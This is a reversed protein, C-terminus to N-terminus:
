DYQIPTSTAKMMWFLSARLDGKPFVPFFEDVLEICNSDSYNDSIMVSPKTLDMARIVSPKRGDLDEDFVGKCVGNEFVLSSASFEAVDLKSAVEAVVFDLSASILQVDRGSQQADKLLNMVPEIPKLQDVFTAAMERLNSEQESELLRIYDRRLDQQWDGFRSRVKGTLSTRKAKLEDLRADNAFYFALFDFTTNARYLTHCVDFLVTSM